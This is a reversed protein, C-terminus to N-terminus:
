LMFQTDIIRQVLFIFQETFHTNIWLMVYLQLVSSSTSFSFTMVPWLYHYEAIYIFFTTCSLPIIIIKLDRMSDIFDFLCYITIIVFHIRLPYILLTRLDSPRSSVDQFHTPPIGGPKGLDLILCPCHKRELCVDNFTFLFNLFSNWLLHM